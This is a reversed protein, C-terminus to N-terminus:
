KRMDGGVTNAGKTSSAGSSRRRTGVDTSPYCWDGGGRADLESGGRSDEKENKKSGLWYIILWLCQKLLIINRGSKPQVNQNPIIINGGFQKNDM